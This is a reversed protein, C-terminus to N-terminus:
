FARNVGGPPTVGAEMSEQHSRVLSWPWSVKPAKLGQASEGDKNLAQVVVADGLIKEVEGRPLDKEVEMKREKAVLDGRGFDTLVAFRVLRSMTSYREAIGPSTHASISTWVDHREAHTSEDPFNEMLSVAADAGCVEFRQPGNITESVGLDHLISAVFVQSINVVPSAVPAPYPLGAFTEHSEYFHKAYLFVRLSHNLIEPPLNSAALNYAAVCLPSSAPFLHHHAPNPIRETVEDKLSFSGSPCM